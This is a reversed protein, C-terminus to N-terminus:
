FTLWWNQFHGDLQARILWVVSGCLQVISDKDLSEYPMKFGGPFYRFSILLTVWAGNRRRYRDGKTRDKLQNFWKVTSLCMNRTGSLMSKIIRHNVSVANFMLMSRAIITVM